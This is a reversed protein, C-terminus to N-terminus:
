SIDPPGFPEFSVTRLSLQEALRAHDDGYTACDYLLVSSWVARDVDADLRRGTLEEAVDSLFERVPEAVVKAESELGAQLAEVRVMGLRDRAPPHTDARRGVLEEEIQMLSLVLYAGALEAAISSRSLDGLCNQRVAWLDAIHEEDRSKKAATIPGGPASVEVQSTTVHGNALHGYEHAILFSEAASAIQSPTFDFSIREHLSFLDPIDCSKFYSQIVKAALRARVAREQKGYTLSAMCVLFDFIGNNLLVITVGGRDVVRANLSATPFVGAFIEGSFGIGARAWREILNGNLKAALSNNTANLFETFSDGDLSPENNGAAVDSMAAALLGLLIALGKQVSDRGEAPVGLSDLLASDRRLVIIPDVEGETFGQENLFRLYASRGTSIQQM